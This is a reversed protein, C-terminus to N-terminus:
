KYLNECLLLCEEMPATGLESNLFRQECANKCDSHGRSYDALSLTLPSLILAITAILVLASFITSLKPNGILM